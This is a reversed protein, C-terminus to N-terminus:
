DVLDAPLLQTQVGNFFLGEDPNAASPLCGNPGCGPIFAIFHTGTTTLIRAASERSLLLLSILVVSIAVALAYGLINIATRGKRRLLEQSACIWIDRM